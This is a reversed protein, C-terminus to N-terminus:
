KDGLFVNLEDKTKFGVSRKIEKGDKLVVLCPISSVQYKDSLEEEDDINVSVFKYDDRENSLEDLVPKLMRCPGCWDANFDVLVTKTENLVESEFNDKNISVISM